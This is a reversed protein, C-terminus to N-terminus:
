DQSNQTKMLRQYLAFFDNTEPGSGLADELMAQIESRLCTSDRYCGDRENQELESLLIVTNRATEPEAARINYLAESLVILAAKQTLTLQRWLAELRPQFAM